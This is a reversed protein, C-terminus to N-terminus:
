KALTKTPSISVFNDNLCPLSSRKFLNEFISSDLTALYFSMQDELLGEDIIGFSLTDNEHQCYAHYSDFVSDPLCGNFVQTTKVRSLTTVDAMSYESPKLPLQSCIISLATVEEENYFSGDAGCKEKGKSVNYFCVPNLWDQLIPFILELNRLICIQNIIFLISLIM